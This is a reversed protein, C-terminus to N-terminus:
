ERIKIAVLIKWSARAVSWLSLLALIVLLIMSLNSSVWDSLSLLLISTAITVLTAIGPLKVLRVLGDRQSIFSELNKLTDKVFAVDGMRELNEYSVALRNVEENVGANRRYKEEYNQAFERLEKLISEITDWSKRESDLHSEKVRLLKIARGKYDNTNRTLSELRLVTFIVALGLVAALTQSITSLTYYWTNVEM